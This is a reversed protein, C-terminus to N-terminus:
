FRWAVMAKSLLMTINAYFKKHQPQDEFSFVEQIVLM